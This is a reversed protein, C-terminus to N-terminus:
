FSTHGVPFGCLWCRAFGSYRGFLENNVEQYTNIPPLVSECQKMVKSEAEFADRSKDNLRALQMSIGSLAARAAAPRQPPTPQGYVVHSGM